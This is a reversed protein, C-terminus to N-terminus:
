STIRWKDLISRLAEHSNAIDASAIPFQPAGDPCYAALQKQMSSALLVEARVYDSKVANSTWVVLVWQASSLALGVIKEYESSAGSTINHKFPDEFYNCVLSYILEDTPKSGVIDIDRSTHSLFVTGALKSIIRTRQPEKVLTASKVLREALRRSRRDGIAPRWFM